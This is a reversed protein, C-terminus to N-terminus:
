KKSEADTINIMSIGHKYYPQGEDDYNYHWGYNKCKPNACTNRYDFDKQHGSQEIVICGCDNCIGDIWVHHDMDTIVMKLAEDVKESVTKEEDKM